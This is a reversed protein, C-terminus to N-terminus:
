RSADVWNAEDLVIPAVARAVRRASEERDFLSISGLSDNVSKSVEATPLSSDGVIQEIEHTLRTQVEKRATPALQKGAPLLDFTVAYGEEYREVAFFPVADTEAAHYAEEIAQQGEYLPIEPPHESVTQRRYRDTHVQGWPRRGPGDAAVGAVSHATGLVQSWDIGNLVM